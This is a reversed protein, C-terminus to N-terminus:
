KRKRLFVLGAIGGVMAVIAATTSFEPVDPNYDFEVYDIALQGWDECGSWIPGLAEIRLYRVEGDPIEFPLEFTVTKWEEGSPNEALVYGIIHPYDNGDTITMFFNDMGSIGDLYKITIENIPGDNVDVRVGAVHAFMDCQEPEIVLCFTDYGQGGYN